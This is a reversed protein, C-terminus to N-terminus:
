GIRYVLMVCYLMSSSNSSSSSSSSSIGSIGSIIIIIKDPRGRPVSAPVERRLPQLGPLHALVYIYIHIHRNHM